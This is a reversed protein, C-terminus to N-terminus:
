SIHIVEIIVVEKDNTDVLAKRLFILKGVCFTDRHSRKPM